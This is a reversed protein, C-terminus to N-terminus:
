SAGKGGLEPKVAQLIRHLNMGIAAASGFPVTESTSEYAATELVKLAREADRVM